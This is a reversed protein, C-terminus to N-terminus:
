KQFYTTYLCNMVTSFLSLYYDGFTFVDNNKGGSTVNKKKKKKKKKKKTKKDKKLAASVAYPPELGPTQDSSCSGAQVVALAVGSGLQSQSRCWLERCCQIGLGTLSALFRVRSRMTGLQIQKRQVMVLVGENINLFFFKSSYFQRMKVQVCVAM